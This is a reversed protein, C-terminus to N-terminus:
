GRTAVRTPIGTGHLRRVLSTMARSIVTAVYSERGGERSHGLRSIAQRDLEKLHMTTGLPTDNHM